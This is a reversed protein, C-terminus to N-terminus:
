VLALRAAVLRQVDPNSGMTMHHIAIMVTEVHPAGEAVCVRWDIVGDVPSIVATVPVPPPDAVSSL